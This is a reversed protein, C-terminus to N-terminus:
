TREDDDGADDELAKFFAQLGSLAVGMGEQQVPVKGDRWRLFTQEQIVDMDYLQRFCQDLVGPPSPSRTLRPENLSM